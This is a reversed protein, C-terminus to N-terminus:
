RCVDQVKLEALKAQLESLDTIAIPMESVTEVSRRVVIISPMFPFRRRLSDLMEGANEHIDLM